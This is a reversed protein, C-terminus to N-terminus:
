AEGHLVGLRSTRSLPHRKTQRLWEPMEEGFRQSAVGERVQVWYGGGSLQFPQSLNGMEDTRTHPPTNPDFWAPLVFNSVSCGHLLYFDSQVPDAVEFAVMFGQGTDAFLNCHPDIFMEAVEHSGISCVSYAGTLVQAGQDLEPKCGIFGSQVAGADETHYGLAQPDDCTDVLFIVRAGRPPRRTFIVPAAPVSWAPAAHRALQLAWVMSMTEADQDTVLTSKNVVYIPSNNALAM